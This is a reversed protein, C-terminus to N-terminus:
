VIAPRWLSYQRLADFAVTGLPEFGHRRYLALNREAGTELAEGADATPLPALRVPSM